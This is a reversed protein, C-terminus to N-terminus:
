PDRLTARRWVLKRSTAQARECCWTMVAFTATSPGKERKRTHQCVSACARALGLMMRTPQKSPAVILIVAMATSAIQTAGHEHMLTSVSEAIFHSSRWCEAWLIQEGGVM